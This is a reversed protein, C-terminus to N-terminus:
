SAADAVAARLDAGAFPKVLVTRAGAIRVLEHVTRETRGTCVVVPCDVHRAVDAGTGDPLEFDTVVVDFAEVAFASLADDLRDAWRVRHGAAELATVLVPGLRHNDEVLLVSLQRTLLEVRTTPKATPAM